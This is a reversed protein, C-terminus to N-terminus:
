SALPAVWVAKNKQMWETMVEGSCQVICDGETQLLENLEQDWGRKLEMRVLLDIEIEVACQMACVRWEKPVLGMAIQCASCKKVPADSAGQHGWKGKWPALAKARLLKEAAETWKERTGFGPFVEANEVAVQQNQPPDQGAQVASFLEAQEREM